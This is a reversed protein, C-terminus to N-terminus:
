GCYRATSERVVWSVQSDETVCESEVREPVARTERNNDGHQVGQVNPPINELEIVKALLEENTGSGGMAKLASLTPWMLEDFSPVSATNHPGETNSENTM